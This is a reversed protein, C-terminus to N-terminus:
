QPVETYALPRTIMLRFGANAPREAAPISDPAPVGRWDTGWVSAWSDAPEELHWLNGTVDRIGLRGPEGGDLRPGSFSPTAPLEFPKRALTWPQGTQESVWLAFAYADYSSLGIVPYNDTSAGKWPKVPVAYRERLYPRIPWARWGSLEKSRHQEHLFPRGLLAAMEERSNATEEQEAEGRMWVPFHSCRAAANALHKPTTPSELFADLYAKVTVFRTDFGVLSKDDGSVWLSVLTSDAGRRATTYWAGERDRQSSVYTLGAPLVAGLRVVTWKPQQAPGVALRLVGSGLEVGFRSLVEDALAASTTGIPLEGSHLPAENDAWLQWLLRAGTDSPAAVNVSLKQEALMGPIPLQRASLEVTGEVDAAPAHGKSAPLAFYCAVGAALLGAALVAALHRMRRPQRAPPPPLSPSIPDHMEEEKTFVDVLVQFLSLVESAGVTDLPITVTSLGLPRSAAESQLDALAGLIEAVRASPPLRLVRRLQQQFARDLSSGYKQQYALLASHLRSWGSMLEDAADLTFAPAEIRFSNGTVTGLREAGPPPAEGAPLALLKWEGAGPPPLYVPQSRDVPIRDLDGRYLTGDHTIYALQWALLEGDHIEFRNCPVGAAQDYRVLGRMRLARFVGAQANRAQAAVENLEAAHLEADDEFLPLYHPCRMV